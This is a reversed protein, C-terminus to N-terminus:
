ADSRKHTEPRPEKCKGVFETTYDQIQGISTPTGVSGSGGHAETGMAARSKSIAGHLMGCVSKLRKQLMDLRTQM